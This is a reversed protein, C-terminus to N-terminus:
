VKLWEIAGALSEFNCIDLGERQAQREGVHTNQEPRLVVAVREVGQLLRAAASGMELRDEETGQFEVTLLDFLFLPRKVRRSVEAGFALASCIEVVTAPGSCAILVMSPGYSVSATFMGMPAGQTM